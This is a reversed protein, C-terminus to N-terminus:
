PFPLGVARRLPGVLMDKSKIARALFSARFQGFPMSTLGGRRGLTVIMLSGKGKGPPQVKYPTLPVTAPDKAYALVKLNKSITAAHLGAILGLRREPLNTVDGAIFINSHGILRLFRDTKLRGDLEVASPWSKGVFDTAIKVGTAWIIADAEIQRGASTVVVGDTPQCGVDPSIVREGLMIDVDHSQLFHKAWGGFKSPAGELLTKAMDLIVVKVEPLTEVFEAAIEVGVPGGGVIVVKEVSAFKRHAEAIEAKRETQTGQIPKILPDLYSSGTAIVAFDFDITKRTGDIAAVEVSRDHIATAYGQVLRVDHLFDAFPFQAPLSEPEVLLRPMAMPVEFYTKPDVLTVDMTSQMTYAIKHGAAGGGIVVLRKSSRTKM